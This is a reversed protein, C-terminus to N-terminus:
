ARIRSGRSTSCYDPASCCIQGFDVGLSPGEGYPCCETVVIPVGDHDETREIIRDQTCCVNQVNACIEGALCTTKAAAPDCIRGQEVCTDNVCETGQSCCVGNCCPRDCCRDECHFTDHCCRDSVCAEDVHCCTDAGAPGCLDEPECCIFEQGGPDSNHFCECCGGDNAPCCTATPSREPDCCVGSFDCFDQAQCCVGNVCHLGSACAEDGNCSSPCAASDSDCTYPSCDTKAQACTGQGDCAFTQLVAGECIPSGCPTGSDAPPNSCTGDAPNCTGAAHCEDSPTCVVPDSGVCVGAQCAHGQFCLDAGQCPTGDAKAQYVCEGTAEDCVGTHCQDPPPCVVPNAGTCVGGQCTDTQTCANGDSCSAGDPKAPNTCLGTSTDCVGVDHCADLATCVVPNSGLCVGGQCIDTQTCANGDDCAAGDNNTGTTISIAPICVVCPKGPPSAAPAIFAGNIRCGPTCADAECVLGNCCQDDRKCNKGTKKCGKKDDKDDDKPKADASRPNPRLGILGALTGAIGGLVQRRTPVAAMRRTLDDFRRDDM